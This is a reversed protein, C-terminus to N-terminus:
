ARRTQFVERNLINNWAVYTNRPPALYGGGPLRDRNGTCVAHVGLGIQRMNSMCSVAQRSPPRGFPIAALDCYARSLALSLLCNWWRLPKVRKVPSGIPRDDIYRRSAPRGFTFFLHLLFLHFPRARLPMWCCRSPKGAAPSIKKHYPHSPSSTTRRCPRIISASSGCMRPYASAAVSWVNFAGLAQADSHVVLGDFKVRAALLQQLGLKAPSM